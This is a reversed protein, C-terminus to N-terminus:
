RLTVEVDGTDGNRHDLAKIGVKQNHPLGNVLNVLGDVGEVTADNIELIIDDVEFGAQGLPGKPDVSSIAVGENTDLGYANAEKPTVPRVTVGLREKVSGLLVKAAKELSGVKVMLEQQRADRWVTLKAEAGLPTNAVDNRLSGSDPVPKGRYSLIVDGRELGGKDAPGGKVVDAILAGKTNALSFKKALEPTLDQISVGLWGREVQGYTMLANAIHLAM